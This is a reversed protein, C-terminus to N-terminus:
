SGAAAPAAKYGNFEQGPKINPHRAISKNYEAAASLVVGFMWGMDLKHDFLNDALYVEVGAAQMGDTPLAASLQCRHVHSALAPRQLGNEICRPQQFETSYQRAGRCHDRTVLCRIGM